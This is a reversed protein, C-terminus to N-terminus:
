FHLVSWIGTTFTIINGLIGRSIM